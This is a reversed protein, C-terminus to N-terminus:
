IESLLKSFCRLAKCSTIHQRGCYQAAIQYFVCHMAVQLISAVLSIKVGGKVKGVGSNKNEPGRPVAKRRIGVRYAIAPKEGCAAPRKRNTAKLLPQERAL